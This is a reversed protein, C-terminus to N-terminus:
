DPAPHGISALAQKLLEWTVPKELYGNVGAEGIRQQNDPTVDGTLAFIPLDRFRADARAGPDRRRREHGAHECGDAGGASAGRRDPRPRRPRQIGRARPLGDAPPGQFTDAPKRRPGRGGRDGRGRRPAARLSRRARARLPGRHPDLRPAGPHVHEGPRPHQGPHDRGRATGGPPPLDGSGPRDGRLRDLAPAARPHRVRRLDPGSGQSRHRGRYRRRRDPGPRGSARRSAPNHRARHIPGRQFPFQLRDAQVQRPRDRSRQRRPQGKRSHIELGKMRAQTEVSALCEALVSELSFTTVEPLVAGADIKSLNLLDGLLDLVNGVSHRITRLCEQVEADPEGDLHLELLHAALVVANLPTRVDHSLAAVLRSKHQSAAEARERQQKLEGEQAIRDSIDRLVVVHGTRRGETIIPSAIFAATIRRGDKRIFVEDGQVTQDSHIAQSLPCDEAPYASGDPRLFHVTDHLSRGLMETRSWGFLREAAPNFFTVRGQLDLTCLGEGQTETITRFLDRQRRLEEENRKRETVDQAVGVAGELQGEPSLLPAANFLLTLSKDQIEWILEEQIVTEGRLARCLPLDDSAYPTGDPRLLRYKPGLDHVNVRGIYQPDLAAHM